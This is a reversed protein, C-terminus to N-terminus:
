LQNGPLTVRVRDFQRCPGASTDVDGWYSVFYMPQGPQVVISTPPVNINPFGGRHVQVNLWGSSTHFDMGPYGNSRCAVGATNTVQWLTSMTGAAGQTSAVTVTATRDSCVAIAPTSPASPSPGVPSPTLHPAPSVSPHVSSGPVPQRGAGVGFARSLAYMGGSVGALLAVVLTVTQVRHMVRLHRKRRGVEQVIRSPDPREELRGLTDRIRQELDPM